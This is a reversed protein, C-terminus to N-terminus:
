CTSAYAVVKVMEAHGPPHVTVLGTLLALADAEAEAEAVAEAEADADADADTDAELEAPGEVTTTVTGTMAVVETALDLEALALAADLATELAADELEARLLAITEWIESPWIWTPEL